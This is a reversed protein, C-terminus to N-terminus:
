LNLAKARNFTDDKDQKHELSKSFAEFIGSGRKKGGSGGYDIDLKPYDKYEIGTLNSVGLDSGFSPFSNSM